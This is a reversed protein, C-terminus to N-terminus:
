VKEQEAETVEINGLVDEEDLRNYVFDWTSPTLNNLDQQREILHALETRKQDLTIDDNPITLERFRRLDKFLANYSDATQEFRNGKKDFNLGRNLVSMIAIGGAIAVNYAEPFTNRILSDVLGFSAMITLIDLATSFKYAWRAMGFFTKFTYAIDVMTDAALSDIDEIDDAAAPTDM